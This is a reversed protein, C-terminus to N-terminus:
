NARVEMEDSTTFAMISFGEIIVEEYPPLKVDPDLKPTAYPLDMTADSSVSDNSSIKKKKPVKPKAPRSSSSNPRPDSDTSQPEPTKSSSLVRYKRLHAYQKLKFGNRIKDDSADASPKSSPDAVSCDAAIMEANPESNVVPDDSSHQSDQVEPPLSCTETRDIPSINRDENIDADSRVSRSRTLANKQRKGQSRPQSMIFANRFWYPQITPIIVLARSRNLSSVQVKPTLFEGSSYGFVRFYFM